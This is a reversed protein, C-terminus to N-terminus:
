IGHLRTARHSAAAGTQVCQHLVQLDYVGLAADIRVFQPRRRVGRLEDIYM